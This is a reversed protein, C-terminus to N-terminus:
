KRVTIDRGNVIIYLSNISEKFMDYTGNLNTNM